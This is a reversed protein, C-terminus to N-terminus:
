RQMQVEAGRLQFISSKVCGVEPIGTREALKAISIEPNAYIRSRVAKINEETVATRKRGGGGKAICSGTQWYREIAAYVTKDNIGSEKIIQQPEMGTRYDFEIRAQKLKDPLDAPTERERKRRRRLEQTRELNKLKAPM